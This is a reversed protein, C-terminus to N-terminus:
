CSHQKDYKNKRSGPAKIPLFTVVTTPVMVHMRCAFIMKVIRAAKVLIVTIITIAPPFVGCMCGIIAVKGDPFSRVELLPKAM